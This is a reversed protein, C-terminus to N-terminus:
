IRKNTFFSNQCWRTMDRVAIKQADSSLRRMSTEARRYDSTADREKLHHMWSANLCTILAKSISPKDRLMPVPITTTVFFLQVVYVQKMLMRFWWSSRCRKSEPICETQVLLLKVIMMLMLMLMLMIMIMIVPMIMIMTLLVLIV